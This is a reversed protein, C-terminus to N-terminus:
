AHTYVRHQEFKKLSSYQEKQMIGLSVRAEAHTVKLVLISDAWSCLVRTELM